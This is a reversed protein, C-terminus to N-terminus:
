RCFTFHLQYQFLSGEDILILIFSSKSLSEPDLFYTQDITSNDSVHLFYGGMTAYFGHVMTWEGGDDNIAQVLKKADVYQKIALGVGLEPAVIVLLMFELKRRWKKWHLKHPWYPVPGLKYWTAQTEARSPINLHTAKWSCVLLVSFCSWLIGSTSRGGNNPVWGVRDDSSSHSTTNEQAYVLQCCILTAALRTVTAGLM